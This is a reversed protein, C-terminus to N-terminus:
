SCPPRTSPRSPSDSTSTWTSWARHVAELEAEGCTVMRRMMLGSPSSSPASPWLPAMPGIRAARAALRAAAADVVLSCRTSRHSFSSSIDVKVDVLLRYGCLGMIRM